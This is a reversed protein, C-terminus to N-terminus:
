FFAVGAAKALTADRVGAEHSTLEAAPTL